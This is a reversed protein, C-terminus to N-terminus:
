FAGEGEPNARARTGDANRGRTPHVPGRRDTNGGLRFLLVGLRKFPRLIVFDGAEDFSHV